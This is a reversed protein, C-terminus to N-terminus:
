PRTSTTGHIKRRRCLVLGPAIAGPNASKPRIRTGRGAGTEDPANKRLGLTIVTKVSPRTKRIPFRLKTIIRASRVQPFHRGRRACGPRAPRIRPVGASNSRPANCHALLLLRGTLRANHCDRIRSITGGKSWSAVLYRAAEHGFQAPATVGRWSKARSHRPRFACMTASDGLKPRRCLSKADGGANRQVLRSLLM